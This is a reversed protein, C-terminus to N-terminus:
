PKRLEHLLRAALLESRRPDQVASVVLVFCRPHYLGVVNRFGVIRRIRAMLATLIQQDIGHGAVEGLEYLNAISVAAVM